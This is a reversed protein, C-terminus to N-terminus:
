GCGFPGATASGGISLIQIKGSQNAMPGGQGVALKKTGPLVLFFDLRQWWKSPQWANREASL